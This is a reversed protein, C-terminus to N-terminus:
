PTLPAKPGAAGGPTPQFGEYAGAELRTILARAWEAEAAMRAEFLRNLEVVHEPTGGQTPDGGVHTAQYRSSELLAEIQSVRARLAACLEQRGLWPMFAVAPMLPDLPPTVTWWSERLMASFDKDGEPTVRYVTRAPRGGEQDTGVVEILGERELTKLASYISGPAINAWQEARWSLLERRVNYGHVPQLIRVAGLVLLRTSSM